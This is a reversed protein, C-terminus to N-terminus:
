GGFGVNPPHSPLRQHPRARDHMPRALAARRCNSGPPRRGPNVGPRRLPSIPARHGCCCTPRWICINEIVEGASTLNQYSRELWPTGESGITFAVKDTGLQRVLTELLAGVTCQHGSPYEPHPPTKILPWWTADGKAAAVAGDAPYGAQLNPTPAAVM